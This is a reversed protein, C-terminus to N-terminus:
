CGHRGEVSRGSHRLYDASLIECTNIEPLEDNDVLEAIIAKALSMLRHDMSALCDSPHSAYFLIGSIRLM